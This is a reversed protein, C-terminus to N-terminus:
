LVQAHMPMRSQLTSMRAYMPKRPTLMLALPPVVLQPIWLPAAIRHKVKHRIGRGSSLPISSVVSAVSGPVAGTAMRPSMSPNGGGGDEHSLYFTKM